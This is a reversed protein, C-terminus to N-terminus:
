RRFRTYRCCASVAASGAAESAESEIPGAGSPGAGSAESAAPEAMAPSPQMVAQHDRCGMLLLAMLCLGWAIAGSRRGAIAKGGLRERFSEYFM